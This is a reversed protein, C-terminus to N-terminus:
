KDRYVSGLKGESKEDSLSFAKPSGNITQRYLGGFDLPEPTSGFKLTWMLYHPDKVASELLCLKCYSYKFSDNLLSNSLLTKREQFLIYLVHDSWRM